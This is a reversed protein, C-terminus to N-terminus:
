RDGLIRSLLFGAAVAMGVSQMPNDRVYSRCDEMLQQQTQELQKGKEGIAEAAQNTAGAIRDVAEHAAKATTDITTQKTEQNEM